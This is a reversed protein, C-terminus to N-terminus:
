VEDSDKAFFISALSVANKALQDAPYNIINPDKPKGFGYALLTKQVEHDPPLIYTKGTNYQTAQIKGLAQKIMVKVLKKWPVESKILKTIDDIPVTITVTTQKKM